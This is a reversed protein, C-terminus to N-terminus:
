ERPRVYVDPYAAEFDGRILEAIARSPAMKQVIEALETENAGLRIASQYYKVIDKIVEKKTDVAREYGAKISEKSEANNIPDNYYENAAELRKGWDNKFKFFFAKTFEINDERVITDMMAEKAKEEEGRRTEKRSRIINNVIGPAFAEQLFYTAQDIRRRFAPDNPNSIAKDYKDIDNIADIFAKATFDPTLWPDLGHGLARGADMIVGEQEDRVLQDFRNMIKHRFGFPHYAGIDIYSIGDKTIKINALDSSNSFERVWLRLDKERQTMQAKVEDDEDDMLEKLASMGYTFSGTALAGVAAAAGTTKSWFMYNITTMGALRKAGTGRTRSDALEKLAIMFNNKEIRVSEAAFAMFSALYLYRNLGQVFAPVRSFTPMVSKVRSSMLKDVNTKQSAALDEYSVSYIDKSYREAEVMFALIKFIEDEFQYAGSLWGKVKDYSYKKWDKSTFKDAIIKELDNNEKVFSKITNIDINNSLVNSKTLIELLNERVKPDTSLKYISKALDAGVYGNNVFILVNSVVNKVHTGPNAVTKLYKSGAFAKGAVRDIMNLRAPELNATLEDYFEKYTWLGGLPQLNPNKDTSIEFNAGEPRNPDNEEFLFKGLGKARFENLYQIGAAIESMKKITSYYRVLPNNVEGMLARIEPKIDMRETLAKMNVSGKVPTKVFNNERGSLIREIQDNVKNELIKDIEARTKGVNQRNVSKRLETRILNKAANIVSQDVNKLKEKINDLSVGDKGNIFLDYYRGFYKGKNSRFLAIEAPNTIAGVTILNDTLADIHVRMNTVAIPVYAPYGNLATKDGEIFNNVDVDKVPFGDKASKKFAEIAQDVYKNSKRMEQNIFGVKYDGSEYIDEGFKKFSTLYQQIIPIGRALKKKVNVARESDGLMRGVVSQNVAEYSSKTPTAKQFQVPKGAADFLGKVRYAEDTWNGYVPNKAYVLGGIQILEDASVLPRGIDSSRDYFRSYRFPNMGVQVYNPDNVISEVIAKANEGREEMTDGPINEWEGYIRAVSTKSIEGAAINLAALPVPEFIVNKIKAVNTYSIVKGSKTHGEHVSAVWTNNYKYSPIDLRLGVKKGEEVPKDINEAEIDKKTAVSFANKIEQLTAPEFFRTIPRIPSNESVTAMYEENTIKGAKLNKAAELVIPNRSSISPDGKGEPSKEWKIPAKQFQPEKGEARVSERAKRVESFPKYSEKRWGEIRESLGKKLQKEFYQEYSTPNKGTRLINAAWLAAQVERPALGLESSLLNVFEKAREFEAKNKPNVQKKNPNKGMIISWVHMDVAIADKDGTIAKFFNYMKDSKIGKGQLFDTVYGYYEAVGVPQEGKYIKEANNIALAVTTASNAAQSSLPLLSLVDESYEGFINNVYNSIGDYWSTWDIVENVIEKAESINLPINGRNFLQKLKESASNTRQQQEKNVAKQSQFKPEIKQFSPGKKELLMLGTASVGSTPFVNLKRDEEVAMGTTPDAFREEWKEREQLIHVTTKNGVQSRIAMPYSEHQNSKVPEVKGEIEIVAYVEGNKSNKLMPESLMDSLSQTVNTASLKYGNDIKGQQKYAANLIGKSFFEGLYQEANTGKVSAVINSIFKLAFLKRDAFTSNEPNLKNAIISKVADITVPVDKGKVTKSKPINIGLGVNKLVYVPNGKEDFIDNGNKDQKKVKKEEVVAAASIMQDIVSEQSLGPINDKSFRTFFEVVGNSATTSSLLKNAPASVLALYIKGGNSEIMENLTKAMSNAANDTSAWFYGDEHFRIPYFVGGKGEILIKGNKSIIGTFANDPSHLMMRKGIFDDLVKDETIFGARKLNEFQENNKIYTFTTKTKKDKFDNGLSFQAQRNSIPTGDATEYGSPQKMFQSLEESEIATGTTFKETIFKALNILEENSTADVMTSGEGIGISKLMDQIFAKIKQFNSPNIVIRGDAVGAVFDTIAEKKQITDGEYTQRAKAIIKAAGPLSELQKFLANIVAPNNESLFDLVPHFGEHLMTDSAIKDMNLHISGDDAMYFGRAKVEEISGGAELVARAFSEQSHINISLTTGLKTAIGGIADFVKRADNIVKRQLKNLGSINYVDDINDATFRGYKPTTQIIRPAIKRKGKRSVPRNSPSTQVPAAQTGAEETGQYESVSSPEAGEEIERESTKTADQETKTSEFVTATKQGNVYLQALRGMGDIIKGDVMVAPINEPNSFEQNYQGQKQGRVEEVRARFEESTEHLDDLDVSNTIFMKNFMKLMKQTLTSANKDGVQAITNAADMGDLEIGVELPEVNILKQPKPLSENISKQQQKRQYASDFANVLKTLQPKKIDSIMDGLVSVLTKPDIKGAYMALLSPLKAEAQTMKPGTYKPPTFEMGIFSPSVGKFDNFDGLETIAGGDEEIVLKGNQVALTGETTVRAPFRSLTFTGKQGVLGDVTTSSTPQAPVGLRARLANLNQESQTYERIGSSYNKNLSLLRKSVDGLLEGAKKDYFLQVRADGKKVDQSFASDDLMESLEDHSVIYRDGDRDYVEAYNGNKTKLFDAAAQKSNELRKNAKGLAEEKAKDDMEQADINAVSEEMTRVNAMLGAYTSQQKRNLGSAKAQDTDSKIEAMKGKMQISGEETIMGNHRMAELAAQNAYLGNTLINRTLAQVPANAVRGVWEPLFGEGKAASERVAGPGGMLAITPAVSLATTYANKIDYLKGYDFRRNQAIAEDQENQIMEEPVETIMEAGLGAGYRKLFSGSGYKGLIGGMGFVTLPYSALYGGYTRNARKKAEEPDLGQELLANYNEGTAQMVQDLWSVTGGALIPVIAATGVGGTLGSVVGATVMGPAMRSLQDGTYATIKNIDILDKAKDIKIKPNEFKKSLNATFDRFATAAESDSNMDVYSAMSNLWGTLGRGFSSTFRTVANPLGSTPVFGVMAYKLANKDDNLSAVSEKLLDAVKKADAQGSINLTSIAKDYDSQLKQSLQNYKRKSNSFQKSYDDFLTASEQKYASQLEEQSTFNKQFEPNTYKATINKAVQAYQNNLQSVELEATKSITDIESSVKNSISQAKKTYEKDINTFNEPLTINKKKAIEAAKQMIKPEDMKYSLNSTLKSMLYTGFGTNTAEPVKSGLYKRLKQQDVFDFGDIDKSRFQDVNAEADKLLNTYTAGKLFTQEFKALDKSAQDDVKAAEDYRDQQGAVATTSYSPIPTNLVSAKEKKKEIETFQEIDSKAKKPQGTIMTSELQQQFMPLGKDPAPKPVNVKYDSIKDVFEPAKKVLRDLIQEDTYGSSKPQTARIQAIVEAKTLKGDPM